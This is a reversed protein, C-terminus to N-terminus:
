KVSIIGEASTGFQEPEYMLSAKAGPWFFVGSSTARLLYKYKYIGPRIADAFLAVREDRPETHNIPNGWYDFANDYGRNVRQYSDTQYRTSTTKLSTDIAELGAPIADDIVLYYGTQPVTFELEVELVDGANIEVQELPKQEYVAIVKGTEKNTVTRKISFGEMRAPQPEKLRYSYSLIYYLYGHGEKSIDIDNLGEPLNAIPLFKEYPKYNYGKFMYNVVEESAIFIKATYDPPEAERKLSIEVLGDIAHANEYTNRWRGNKRANLIYRAMPAIYESDPEMELFLKIGEATTIVPSYMFLWSPLLERPSEFHATQATIFMSNKIEGLMKYAEDKWNPSQFLLHALSIQAGYSLDNRRNFYEEFYTEDNRGLYHMGLLINIRYEALAQWSWFQYPPNRLTKDLFELLKDTTEKEIEYGLEQSRKFLYAVYPSLYCDSTESTPWFKFGGDANQMLLIKNINAMIVEDVPKVAELSFGYKDSLFKLQILALLRSSTQELCGYPYEVLYKAGEGIDTLATSSLLIKLGGTDKRVTDDIKIQQRGKQSPGPTPQRFKETTEGVAVVTETAVVDQVEFPIEIADSEGIKQGDYIGDFYATFRLEAIGPRQARFPFLVTKSEGPKIIQGVEEMKTKVQSFDPAPENDKFIVPYNRIGFEANRIGLEVSVKAKGEGETLNTIAVGSLFEDGIRSFRPLVARLIFPQTVLVKEEGYGFCGGQGRQYPPNLPFLDNKGVSVVMIKWTTLNDPVKFSFNAHGNEDTVLHPNYYALKLFEKRVQPLAIAGEEIGGDYGTGYFTGKQLLEEKAIIFPRNDNVRVSLGRQEYVIKVLDPPTYGTLDLIAEDVVMVTLESKHGQKDTRAVAIDVTLEESPRLKARSPKIEVNLYKDSISVSFHAFGIKEIHKGKEEEVPVLPEGLRYLVSGVYANPLMDETIQFRYTYGSGKIKRIDKLFIKERCVTFFLEADPFPSKIFAVAEDGVKYEEKDMIIELSDEGTEEWPVYDEGAVWLSAAASTGSDPKDRLEALVMFFGAEEPTLTLSIPEEASIIEKTQLVKEVVTHEIRFKDDGTEMKVSHWERKILKINLPVDTIPKGEPSSVIVSATLESKKAVIWDSLKIGVLREDPLLIINKNASSTQKSVDEVEVDCNYDMPFPVDEPRLEITKSAKGEKNLNITERLYESSLSVQREDLYEPIGFSFGEWGKPSFYTRRRTINLSSQAESMPAGFYYKGEWSINIPEGIKAIMKDIHMTVKFEPVRFEALRFQGWFELGQHPTKAVVSYYGLSQGKKTPIDFNFTGFENVKVKGIEKETGMPDYLKITYELGQGNLLKGYLLYRSIGKMKVTDGPRYIFQDSFITGRSIPREAEWDASVGFSWTSPYGWEQTQLFTWDDEKEAIILLRPPEAFGFREQDYLIDDPDTEPPYLENLIKNDIRRKSIKETSLTLMGDSDTTGEFCPTIKEIYTNTILDWIKELQPLDDERYIRVKAEGIPLGDTLQNLKIIGGTPLFSAYIGINTRLILGNFTIPNDYYKVQPSRFTYAVVGYKEGRLHPKLDFYAKGVSADNLQIKVKLEKSKIQSILQEIINYYELRERVLIDEPRLPILKYFASDINVTKIGLTPEINPTIIQYGNPGWMKPTLEGTTFTVNQPNGLEQGYLDKLGRKLTVTYTTKPELLSDNLTVDYWNCEYFPWKETKPEISVLQEFSKQEPTNSFSLYPVTTLKDGCYPHFGIQLFRFPPYTRFSTSFQKDTRMNGREPLVGSQVEVTYQTDTRLNKQPKLIYDYTLDYWLGKANTLSGFMGIDEEDKPNQESELFDYLVPERSISEFYKIRNKLSGINLSVNSYIHVEQGLGSHDSNDIPEFWISIPPTNFDWIYDAELKNGEIDRLGKKVKVSYKTAMPLSHAPEFVVVSTGLFRFEGDVDPELAFYELVRAREENSLITLPILPKDFAIQIQVQGQVEGTPGHHTIKLPKKITNAESIAENRAVPKTKRTFLLTNFSTPDRFRREQSSSLLKDQRPNDADDTDSVDLLVGIAGQAPNINLRALPIAVEVTYGGPYKRSAATVSRELAENRERGPSWDAVIPQGEQTTGIALQWDDASMTVDEKDSDLQTDLWIEVHDSKLLQGPNHAFVVKDDRVKFTFYLNQDDWGISIDASLDNLDKWREPHFVVSEKEFHSTPLPFDSTFSKIRGGEAKERGGESAGDIVPPSALKVAHLEQRRTSTQESQEGVAEAKLQWSIKETGIFWMIIFCLYSLLKFIKKKMM